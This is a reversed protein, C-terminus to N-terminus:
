RWVKVKKARRFPFYRWINSRRSLYGGVQVPIHAIIHILRSLLWISCLFVQKVIAWSRFPNGGTTFLVYTPHLLFSDKRIVKRYMDISWASYAHHQLAKRRKYNIVPLLQNHCKLWPEICNCAYKFNSTAPNIFCHSIVSGLYELWEMMGVRFM